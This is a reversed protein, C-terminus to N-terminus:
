AWATRSSTMVTTVGAEGGVAPRPLSVQPLPAFGVAALADLVVLRRRSVDGM